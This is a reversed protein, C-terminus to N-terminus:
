LDALAFKVYVSVTVSIEEPRSFVMPGPSRVEISPRQSEAGSEEQRYREVIRDRLRYDLRQSEIGSEEIIEVSGIKRGTREVYHNARKTADKIALSRASEFLLKTDDITYTPPSVHKPQAATLAGLLQGAGYVDETRVSLYQEALFDGPVSERSGDPLRVTKTERDVSYYRSSINEESLGYDAIISQLKEVQRALTETAIEPSEGRGELVLALEASTPFTKAEGVGVVAVYDQETDICGLLSLSFLVIIISKIM